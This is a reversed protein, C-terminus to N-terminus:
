TLRHDNALSMWYTAIACIAAVLVYQGVATSVLAIGLFGVVPGVVLIAAVYLLWNM